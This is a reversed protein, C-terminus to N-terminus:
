KNRFYGFPYVFDGHSVAYDVNLITQAIDYVLLDILDQHYHFYAGQCLNLASIFPLQSVHMNHTTHSELPARQGHQSHGLEISNYSPNCAHVSQMIHRKRLHPRGNIPDLAM